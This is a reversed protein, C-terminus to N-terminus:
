RGSSVNSSRSAVTSGWQASGLVSARGDAGNWFFKLDLEETLSAIESRLRDVEALTRQRSSRSARSWASTMAMAAVSVAHLVGARTVKRWGRPLPLASQSSFPPM